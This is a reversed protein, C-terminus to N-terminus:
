RARMLVLKRGVHGQSMRSPAKEDEDEEDRSPSLFRVRYYAGSAEAAVCFVMTAGAIWNAGAMVKLGWGIAAAAVTGNEGGTELWGDGGGRGGREVANATGV